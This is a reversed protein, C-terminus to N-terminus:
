NTRGTRGTRGKLGVEDLRDLRDFKIWDRLGVQMTWGLGVRM